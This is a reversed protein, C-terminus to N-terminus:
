YHLQDENDMLERVYSIFSNLASRSSFTQDSKLFRIETKKYEFDDDAEIDFEQMSDRMAGLLRMREATEDAKENITVVMSMRFIRKHYPNYEAIFLTLGRMSYLGGKRQIKCVQDFSPIPNSDLAGQKSYSVACTIRRTLRRAASLEGIQKMGSHYVLSKYQFHCDNILAELKKVSNESIKMKESDFVWNKSLLGSMIYDYGTKDAIMKQYVMSKSLLKFYIDEGPDLSYSRGAGDITIDIRFYSLPYVPLVASIINFILEKRFISRGCSRVLVSCEESIEVGFENETDGDKAEGGNSEVAESAGSESAGSESAGDELEGSKTEAEKHEAAEPGSNEHVDNESKAVESEANESEAEKNIRRIRSIRRVDVQPIQCVPIFEFVITREYKMCAKLAIICARLASFFFKRGIRKPNRVERGPAYTTNEYRMVVVNEIRFFKRIQNQLFECYDAEIRLFYFGASDLSVKVVGVYSSCENRQPITFSKFIEEAGDYSIMRKGIERSFSFPKGANRGAPIPSAEIKASRVLFDLETYDSHFVSFVPFSDSHADVVNEYLFFDSDLPEIKFTRYLFDSIGITGIDNYEPFLVQEIRYSKVPPDDDKVIREGAFDPFSIGEFEIPADGDEAASARCHVDRGYLVSKDNEPMSLIILMPAKFAICRKAFLMTKQYLSM